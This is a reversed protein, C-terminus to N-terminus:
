AFIDSMIKNEIREVKKKIELMDMYQYIQLIKFQHEEIDRECSRLRNILVKEIINYKNTIENKKKDINEDEFIDCNLKNLENNKIENNSNLEDLIMQTTGELDNLEKIKKKLVVNELKNLVNVM